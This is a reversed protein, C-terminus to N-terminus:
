FNAVDQWSSVLLTPDIQQVYIAINRSAGMVTSTTQITRNENGSGGVARIRCADGNVSLTENGAYAQSTKLKMLATEACHTAAAEARAAYEQADQISSEELARTLVGVGILIALASMIIVSILAIYGPPNKM